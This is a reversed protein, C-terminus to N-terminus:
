DPRWAFYRRPHHAFQLTGRVDDARRRVVVFPALFSLVEFDRGLEETDWTPEGAAFAAAAAAPMQLVLNRRIQETADM